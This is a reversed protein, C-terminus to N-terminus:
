EKGGVLVGAELIGSFITLIGVFFIEIARIDFTINTVVLFWGALIGLTLILKTMM